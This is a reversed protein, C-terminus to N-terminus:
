KEVWIFQPLSSMLETSLSSNFISCLAAAEPRIQLNNEERRQRRRRKHFLDLLTLPNTFFILADRTGQPSTTAEPARHKRHLLECHRETLFTQPPATMNEKQTHTYTQQYRCVDLREVEWFDDERNGTTNGCFLFIAWAFFFFFDPDEKM